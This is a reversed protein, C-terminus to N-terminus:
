RSVSALERAFDLLLRKTRPPLNVFLSYIELAELQLENTNETINLGDMDLFACLIQMRPGNPMSVGRIWKRATEGSISCKYSCAFNFDEALKKASPIKGYKGILGIRLKSKFNERSNIDDSSQNRGHELADFKQKTSNLQFSM